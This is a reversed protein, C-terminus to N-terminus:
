DLYSKQCLELKKQQSNKFTLWGDDAKKRVFETGITKGSVGATGM